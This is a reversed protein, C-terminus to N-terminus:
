CWGVGAHDVIERIYYCTDFDSSDTDNSISTVNSEIIIALIVYVAKIMMLMMM